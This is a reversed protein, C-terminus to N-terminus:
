PGLFLTSTMVPHPPSVYACHRRVERKFTLFAILMCLVGML